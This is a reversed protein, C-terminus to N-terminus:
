QLHNLRTPTADATSSDSRPAMSVVIYEREKSDLHGSDLNEARLLLKDEQLRFQAQAGVSLLVSHKERRSRIRYIVRETQLVYEQCPSQAVKEATGCQVSDMQVLKGTQYPKPDKGFAAVALSLVICPIWKSRMERVGLIGLGPLYKGRGTGKNM